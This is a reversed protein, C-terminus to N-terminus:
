RYNLVVRPDACPRIEPAGIKLVGSGTKSNDIKIRPQFRLSSAADTIRFPPSFIVGSWAETPWQDAIYDEMGYALIGGTANDRLHMSIGQWGAWASVDVEMSARVWTGVPLGHAVDTVATQFYFLDTGAVQNPTFTLVQYNGRGDARSEKSAACACGVSTNRLVRYNTACNGTVPASITGSTGTLMPNQAMNGLPNLTADYLDDPAVVRRSGPPLIRALFEGFKKGVAYASLTNFHVGDPSYGTKPNGNTSNFDVWHENWDFLFCNRRSAALERSKQNVYHCKKRYGSVATWSVDDRMLVPLLIVLKGAAIFADVMAQRNAAITDAAVSTMDNTGASVVVIDCDISDVLYSYRALIQASTQGGVGANAGRFGVTSGPGSPEWGTRSTQDFWVDFSFMGPNLVQAWNIFGRSWSSLKFSSNATHHHEILSEGIAALRYGQAATRNVAASRYSM